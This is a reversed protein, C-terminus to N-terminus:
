RPKRRPPRRTATRPDSGSAVVDAGIPFPLALTGERPKGRTDVDSSENAALEPVDLALEDEFWKAVLRRHCWNSETFPPVEWCLLIPEHGDALEHLEHLVQRPNLRGLIERFFLERYREKTVSKFWSGPALGKFVHFGPPCGRPAWRAISIRGPGSYTRFSGTKM